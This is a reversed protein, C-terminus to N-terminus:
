IVSSVIIQTFFDCFFHLFTVFLLLIQWASISFLSFISGLLQPMQRTESRNLAFYFMKSDFFICYFSSYIFVKNLNFQVATDLVCLKCKSALKIQYVTWINLSRLIANQALEVLLFKSELKPPILRWTEPANWCSICSFCTPASRIRWLWTHRMTVSKKWPTVSKESEHCRKEPPRFPFSAAVAANGFHWLTHRKKLHWM